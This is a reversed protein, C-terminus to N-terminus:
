ETLEPLLIGKARSSDFNIGKVRKGTEKYERLAWCINTAALCIAPIHISDMLKEKDRNKLGRTRTRNFFYDHLAHFIAPNCFPDVRSQCPCYDVGNKLDRFNNSLLSLFRM